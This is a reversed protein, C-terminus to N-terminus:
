RRIFVYAAGANSASNDASATTGNTITTQNSDETSAGVVVTNGSISLIEGFGDAGGANPAKLYSQQIWNSGTRQFIYVAGAGSLSDDASATTGNTITTQNSDETRAGVAITDGDISVTWGFADGVGANPAKLYAEQSWISGARQFVYVAGSDTLSNNASATSGNTVTTQNSDEQFAGVAITNGSISVSHGFLDSAGANSAKLFAQQSWTSGSRQFVYVAGSDALSNDASATSGNTITTQNSDEARVGVAIKDGSISVACGFEDLSGANPAKLYAEQDWISGTRKFVYVAGSDALSNDASATTGNTITTQNSDEMRAGVILTDGSISLVTGFEDNAGANSAKIYAQREWTSGTRQFVYVAGSSLALNNASATTGNTITTQNSDEIPASVVVTDGSVGLAWGFQDNNDAIPAKLYAQQAWNNGTRFFVYAAGTDFGTNNLSATTGNTITTQNSDEFRTGVVITDGSMSVSSGFQDAAEANPAKLYAQAEWNSPLPTSTTGPSTSASSTSQESNSSSSGSDPATSSLNQNPILYRCASTEIGLLNKLLLTRVLNEQNPDCPNEYDPPQCAVLFLLIPPFLFALLLHM